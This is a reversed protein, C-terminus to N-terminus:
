KDHADEKMHVVLLAAYEKGAFPCQTKGSEGSDACPAALELDLQPVTVGLRQAIQKITM